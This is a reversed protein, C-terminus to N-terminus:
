IVGYRDKYILFNEKIEQDSLVRNYVQVLGIKGDFPRTLSDISGADFDAGITFPTSVSKLSTNGSSTNLLNEGNRYMSITGSRYTVSFNTWSSASLGHPITHSTYSNGSSNGVLFYIQGGSFWNLFLLWSFNGLGSAGWRSLLTTRQTTSDPKIWINLTLSSSSLPISSVTAHNNSGNFDFSGIGDKSLPPSNVLTAHSRNYTKDYWIRGSGPNSQSDAADLNAILGFKNPEIRGGLRIWQKNMYVKPCKETKDFILLGEEPDPYNDYDFSPLRVTRGNIKTAKDLDSNIFVTGDSSIDLVTKNTDSNGISFLSGSSINSDVVFVTSIGSQFSIEGGDTDKAKIYLPQNGSGVFSIEPESSQGRNPTILINKDSNAM